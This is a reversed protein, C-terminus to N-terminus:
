HGRRVRIMSKIKFDTNGLTAKKPYNGQTDKKKKKLMNSEARRYEPCLAVNLFM